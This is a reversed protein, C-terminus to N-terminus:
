CIDNEIRRARRRDDLFAIHQEWPLGIMVWLGHDAAVDLLWRPPTTYVRVANLGATAMGRFDREVMDRPPFQLGASDPKFTGYTVGKVWLQEDGVYLFKGHVRPRSLAFRERSQRQTEPQNLNFPRGKVPGEGVPEHMPAVSM